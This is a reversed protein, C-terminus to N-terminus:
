RRATKERGNRDKDGDPHGRKHSDSGSGSGSGSGSSGTASGSSGSEVSSVKGRVFGRLLDDSLCIFISRLSGNFGSEVKPLITNLETDSFATPLKTVAEIFTYVKVKRDKASPPPTIRLMPRPEYGSVSAKSEANATKYRQALVKMIAIRVRTNATVRNRISIDKLDVPRADSGKSFFSGFKARIERSAEVSFMKVQWRTIAKSSKGTINQVFHVAHASGTLQSIIRTVFSKAEEQWAKGSLNDAFKPVGEIIFFDEMSRNAHFDALESDVATKFEYDKNLRRHDQELVVVRDALLRSDEVVRLLMTEPPQTLSALKSKSSDFLHYIYELGSYSTLHVGDAEFEPTPFSPLVLALDCQSMFNSFQVLVEPLGDRFWVPTKRYMPPAVIFRISSRASSVKRVAESFSKLVPEIRKSINSDEASSTLFNTICSLICVNVSPEIKTLVEDLLEARNCVLIQAEGLDPCSRCNFQTVNRKVNSDGVVAFILKPVTADAQVDM